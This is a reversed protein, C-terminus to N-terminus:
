AGDDVLLVLEDFTVGLAIALKRATTVNPEHTGRELSFLTRETIGARKALERKSLGQAERFEQVRIKIM